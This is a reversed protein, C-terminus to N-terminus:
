LLTYKVKKSRRARVMSLISEFNYFVQVSLVMALSKLIKNQEEEPDGHNHGSVAQFFLISGLLNPWFFSSTDINMVVNLFYANRLVSLAPPLSELNAEM